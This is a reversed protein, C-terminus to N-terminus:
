SLPTQDFSTIEESSAYAALMQGAIATRPPVIFGISEEGRPLREARTVMEKVENRTFWQAAELEQEDVTITDVSAEAICGLMLSYPFPWPQSGFFRVRDVVVGAEELVERRVADDVGEGHEMFGALCSFLGGTYRKQRGLLARDGSKDLVLMIVVPDTRPFWMGICGTREISADAVGAPPPELGHVNRECRRRSGGQEPLTPAGCMGCFAHRAHFEFLARAQAAMAAHSQDLTRAASRLHLFKPAGSTRPLTALWTTPNYPQPLRVALHTVNKADKGLVLLPPDIANPDFPPVHEPPLLALSAAPNIHTLIQLSHSFVLFKSDPKTNSQIFDENRRDNNMRNLYSRNYLSTRIDIANPQKSSLTMSPYFTPNVFRLNMRRCLLSYSHLFAIRPVM